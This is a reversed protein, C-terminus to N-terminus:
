APTLRSTAAVARASWRIADLYRGALDGTAPDGQEYATVVALVEGLPGTGEVLAAVIDASLPLQDAMASHALGLLDAVGGILGAMFATDAPAGLMVAVNESLRARTLAAIMQDETAGAVDDIVMLMAWQRVHELGVMVVAQRVSSIRSPGGAAASSSARLVRMSLAPDAAIIALIKELDAEPASLAGLLELRRLRSPSLSAATLVQPRSLAYGQRLEFGYRDAVAVHEATEIKEAVIQVGPHERIRAVLEDLEGAGVELLDLKVYSALPLLREHGSGWAFDDLAIRYGAEALRAIGAIVEDDVRVTELVELVVREPGFPPTLESTLFETTLNIFCLRDGAVEALGFETFTNVIVQSTAYTDQRDARVADTSGRFLLEYAVVRGAADFIPQRGVHVLHARRNVVV